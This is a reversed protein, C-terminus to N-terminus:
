QYSISPDVLSPHIADRLQGGAAVATPMRRKKGISKWILEIFCRDVNDTGLDTDPRGAPEFSNYVKLKKTLPEGIASGVAELLISGVEASMVQRPTLRASMHSHMATRRVRHFTLKFNPAAAGAARLSILNRKRKLSDHLKLAKATSRYMDTIDLRYFVSALKVRFQAATLRKGNQFPNLTEHCSLGFVEPAKALNRAIEFFHLLEHGTVYGISLWYELMPLRNSLSIRVPGIFHKKIDVAAKAHRAEVTTEIIFLFRFVAIEFLFDKDLLDRDIGDDIFRDLERAFASDQKFLRWTKPDHLSEIQPSDRFKARANRANSRARLQDEVAIGATLM